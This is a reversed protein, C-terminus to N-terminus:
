PLEEVSDETLEWCQRTRAFTLRGVPGFTSVRRIPLATNRDIDYNARIWEMQFVGDALPKIDVKLWTWDDQPDIITEVGQYILFPPEFYRNRAVMKIGGDPRTVKVKSAVFAHRVRAHRFFHHKFGEMDGTECANQWSSNASFISEIERHKPSTSHGCAALLVLAATLALRRMINQDSGKNAMIPVAM